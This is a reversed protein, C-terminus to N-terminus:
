SSNQLTDPSVSPFPHCKEEYDQILLTLLEALAAEEPSPNEREDLDLLIEVLRSHEAESHIPRTLSEALLKAYKSTKIEILM